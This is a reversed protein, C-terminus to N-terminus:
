ESIEWKGSLIPSAKDAGQPLLFYGLLRPNGIDNVILGKISGPLSSFAFSGTSLTKKDTVGFTKAKNSIVPLQIKLAVNGPNASVMVAAAGPQDLIEVADVNLSAAPDAVGGHEFNLTANGAPNATLGLTALVGAGAAYRGGIVDLDVPGFGGKYLRDKSKAPQTNKFWSAESTNLHGVAPQGATGPAQMALVAQLSGTKKYLLSFVSLCGGNELPASFTVRSDDALLLSGRATGNSACVFGGLSYGQPISANGTAEAAPLLALTYAGEYHPVMAVAKSRAQFPLIALGDAVTGQIVGYSETVPPPGADLQQTLGYLSFLITVPTSGPRQIVIVAEPTTGMGGYSLIGSSRLTKAGLKVVASYSGLTSVTLQVHGGLQQNLLPARGLVGTYTAVTGVPLGDVNLSATHPASSGAANSATFTISFSGAVVPVGSLTNTKGNFKLGKPLGSVRLKVDPMLPGASYPQGIVADALTLGADIEPVSIVTLTAPPSFMWGSANRVEARYSGADAPLTAPIVLTFDREGQLPEGDKFWQVELDEGKAAVKFSAPKGEIVTLSRPASVSEPTMWKVPGVTSWAFTFGQRNLNTAPANSGLAFSYQGPQLTWSRTITEASSNNIHDVYQLHPAWSVPGRNNYMHSDIGSSQWGRWITLSPFMSATDAKGDLEPPAAAWPVDANRSMTVSFNVTETVNLALWKSTHTWGVPPQGPSFLANDEWSWAGVHSAVSGAENQGVSVTWAYGVGDPSLDGIILSSALVTNYSLKFGQRLSNNSAANSGIAFSYQGRKLKFTRTISAETSNDVHDVHSLEPAWWINGKNHYTHPTSGTNKWGRYITFSPFMSTIDALRDPEGVSPWPVTADRELKVTFFVEDEDVNLAMWHSTHTWGVPQQGPQFLSNDEWSWAGVHNSYQGQSGARVVTSLAYGIGGALPAPDAAVQDNATFSISYGQENFNTAPANSGLALTYAGKPLFITRTISEETSNDVHYVHSLGPAWNISTRNNYTDGQAGINRTGSWITFSPFMSTIDAFGGGAVPVNADRAMTITLLTDNALNLQAWNSAHTWGVTPQGDNFLSEDEWSWAGVHDSFGGSQNAGLTVIHKYPVGSEPQPDNVTHTFATASVSGTLGYVTADPEAGGVYNVGGVFISYDGATLYFTGTVTGDANGDGFIDPTNGFLSADGDAACGKFVFTTLGTVPDEFDFAPGAQAENGIRWDTLARFCGEKAPAPLSARYAVSIPSGDHDPPAAHALGQYVSFGPKISGDSVAGSDENTSGSFTITVLAPAALSFRYARLKHSDGFDDDTGDAWGFNGIVTQNSITVPAANPVLAGFDRTSYGIHGLAHGASLLLLAGSLLRRMPKPKMNPETAQITTPIPKTKPDALPRTM